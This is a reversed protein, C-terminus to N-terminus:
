FDAGLIVYFSHYGGEMAGYAFTLPGVPSDIGAFISGATYFPIDNFTYDPNNWVSGYELSTGLYVPSRFLGFDNDFLRYRYVLSGFAINNGAMSNKPIGSLNLFGGLDKPGILLNSEKSLLEGYQMRASITHRGISGAIRYSLDVQETTEHDEAGFSRSVDDSVGYEASFYQGHTPFYLSDLTDVKLNVFGQRRTFTGELSSGPVEVSGDFYRIGSKIEAWLKPQWGLAAEGQWDEYRSNFWYFGDYNGNQPPPRVGDYLTIIRQTVAYGGGFSAFFQQDASLPYYLESYALKETGLELRTRLEAGYDSLGTSIIGVGLSYNTPTEFNDEIAFRFDVYNPGWSKEDVDVVLENGDKGPEVHYRITEFRDLAYLNDVASELRKADLPGTKLNLRSTLVDDSLSTNNHIVIKDIQIGERQYLARRRLQKEEVYHQYDGATLSLKKLKSFALKTAEYGKEYAEPVRDFETTEMDGVDPRLLIDEPSMLAMQKEASQRVLYNVLQGSVAFYSDLQNAKLYDTSIDVAIVIDAGLAKAVDVPLNNVSGGDVLLMGEWKFPPLAGPVSMSAQMASTLLGHDIVVPKMHVIDTAVARFPIVLDNFSKLSPLNNTYERLLRAMSQGQVVGKPTKFGKLDFGFDTQINYRDEFDKDGIRRDGRAVKDQYGESWHMTDMLVKIEDASMGTAYLGGIYAGMSTGTVYDVPIHMEELAKLVGAHAAGKAGGGGLVLAITPRHNNEAYASSVSLFLAVAVLPLLKIAHKIM